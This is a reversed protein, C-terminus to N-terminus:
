KARLWAKGHVIAAVAAILLWVAGSGYIPKWFGTAFGFVLFIVIPLTAGALVVRSDHKTIKMAEKADVM